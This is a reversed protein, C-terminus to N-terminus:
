LIGRVVPREHGGRARAYPQRETDAIGEDRDLPDIDPMFGQTDDQIVPM